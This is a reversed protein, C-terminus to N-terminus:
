WRKGWKISDGYMRFVWVMSDPDKPDEIPSIEIDITSEDLQGRRDDYWGWDDGATVKLKADILRYIDNYTVYNRGASDQQNIDGKDLAISLNQVRERIQSPSQTSYFYRSAFDDWYKYIQNAIPPDNATNSETQPNKAIEEKNVADKVEKAKEEGLAEEAEKQFAKYGAIANNALTLAETMNSIKKDSQKKATIACAITASQFIIIPIAQPALRKITAVYINHKENDDKAEAIMQKAADITEIIGRANRITTVTTALSFGITGGTLIASQHLIYFKMVPKVIKDTHKKVVPVLNM